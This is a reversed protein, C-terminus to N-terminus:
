IQNSSKKHYEDDETDGEDQDPYIWIRPASHTLCSYRSPIGSRLECACKGVLMNKPPQHFGSSGSSVWMSMFLVQSSELCVRVSGSVRPRHSAIIVIVSNRKYISVYTERLSQTFIRHLVFLEM